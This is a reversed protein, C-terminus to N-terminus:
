ASSGLMVERIYDLLQPIDQTLTAWVRDPQLDDYQHAAFNRMAVIQRWPQDPFQRLLRDPLRGVAEGIRILGMEVAWQTKLDALFRGKGPAAFEQLITCVHAIVDLNDLAKQGHASVLADRGGTREDDREAM